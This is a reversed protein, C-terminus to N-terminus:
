KKTAERETWHINEKFNSPKFNAPDQVYGSFCRSLPLWIAADGFRHDGTNTTNMISQIKLEGDVVVPMKRIAGAQTSGVTRM